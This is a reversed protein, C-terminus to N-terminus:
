EELSLIMSEHNVELNSRKTRELIVETNHVIQARPPELLTTSLFITKQM